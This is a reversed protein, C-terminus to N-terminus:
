KSEEWTLRDGDLRASAPVGLLQCVESLGTEAERLDRRFPELSQEHDRLRGAALSVCNRAAAYAAAEVPTLQKTTLTM